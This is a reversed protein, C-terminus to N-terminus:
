GEENLYHPASWARGGRSDVIQVFLYDSTAFGDPIKIRASEITDAANILAARHSYLQGHVYVGCVPTCEVNLYGDEIWLNKFMPGTSAYFAGSDLASILSSYTLSPAKIVTFGRFYELGPKGGESERHSDDTAIPMVRRGRRLELEYIADSSSYGDQVAEFGNFVEINAFGDMAALADMSMGSWRPHNMTTIYGRENLLAIGENIKTIDDLPYNPIELEAAPDRSIGCIHVSSKRGIGFAIEVGSLAVFGDDTLENHPACVKHDTYAVAHYGEALYMDKIERPTFAGDSVTTHCHLNAKYLNGDDPLLRVTNKM